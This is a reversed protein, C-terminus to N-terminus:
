DRHHGGPELPLKFSVTLGGTANPEAWIRGGHAELILRCIPLGIGIGDEKTSYYPAFLEEVSRGEPLGHGTDSLAVVVNDDARSHITVVRQDAPTDQMADVANRLLNRVVLQLQVRDGLVHIGPPIDISTRVRGIALEGGLLEVVQEV